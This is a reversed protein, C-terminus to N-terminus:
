PRIEVISTTEILVEYILAVDEPRMRICGMSAQRGISDPEITGHIGYGALGRTADDIGVLGLWHEGIPNAPDDAAYLEGTRPNSWQPNIAKSKPRVRFRGLPTSNFEGLGVLFSTVFVRKEGTGLYLDLRYNTKSVVAHFPGTMLKLRRGARLHRETPIGNIRLLFRWNVGLSQKKVISSLHEGPSVVHYSSFPDGKVVEPSFVLRRNLSELADRVFEADATALGPHELVATLVRRAAVPRNAAALDLGQRMTTQLATGGPGGTRGSAPSSVDLILTTDAAVLEQVSPAKPTRIKVPASKRAVVPPTTKKAAQESTRTPAQRRPPKTPAATAPDEDMAPDDRLLLLSASGVILIVAM